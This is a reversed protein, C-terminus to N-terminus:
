STIIYITNANPTLLDYEAQSGSWILAGSTLQNNAQGSLGIKGDQLATIESQAHGLNTRLDAKGAPVGSAPKTADIASAM